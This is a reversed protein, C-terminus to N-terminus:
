PLNVRRDLARFQDRQKRQSIFFRITQLVAEFIFPAPIMVLCMLAALNYARDIDHQM